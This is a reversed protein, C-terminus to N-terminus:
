AQAYMEPLEKGPKRPGYYAPEDERGSITLLRSTAAPVFCLYRAINRPQEGAGSRTVITALPPMAIARQMWSRNPAVRLPTPLQGRRISKKKKKKQQVNNMYMRCCLVCAGM